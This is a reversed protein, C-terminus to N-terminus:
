SETTESLLYRLYTCTPPLYDVITEIDTAKRNDPVQLGVSISGTATPLYPLGSKRLVKLTLRDNEAQILVQYDIIM